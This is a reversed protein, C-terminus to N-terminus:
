GLSQAPSMGPSGEVPLPQNPRSTVVCSRSYLRLRIILGVSLADAAMMVPADSWPHPVTKIRSEPSTSIAPHFHSLFGKRIMCASARTTRRTRDAKEAMKGGVMSTPACLVESRPAAFIHLEFYCAM